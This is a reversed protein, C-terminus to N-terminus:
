QYGWQDGHDGWVFSRSDIMGRCTVISYIELFSEDDPDSWIARARAEDGGAVELIAHMIEPSTKRSKATALFPEDIRRVFMVNSRDARKMPSCPNDSSCHVTMFFACKSCSSLAIAKFGEPAEDPNIM